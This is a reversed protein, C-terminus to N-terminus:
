LDNEAEELDDEIVSPKGRLKINGRSQILAFFTDKFVQMDKFLSRNDLYSKELHVKTDFESSNYNVALQLIAPSFLGPKVALIEQYQAHNLDAQEPRMPRPGIVHMDGFLINFFQPLHDLSLNRVLRGVKTAPQTVDNKVQTRFNYLHFQKGHQGIRPSRYLVPFGTELVIMLAIILLLPSFIVILVCAFVIELLRYM